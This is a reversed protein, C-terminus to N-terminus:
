QLSASLAPDPTVCECEPDDASGIRISMEESLQLDSEKHLKFDSPLALATHPDSGVGQFRFMGANNSAVM